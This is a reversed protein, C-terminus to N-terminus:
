VLNGYNTRIQPVYLAAKSASRTNHGHVATTPTFFNEFASPPNDHHYDFMFIAFQLTILDFVKLIKLKKFLPNTHADFNSFTSIRLTKKQM